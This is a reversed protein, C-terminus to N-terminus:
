AHSIKVASKFSFQASNSGIVIVKQLFKFVSFLKLSIEGSVFVLQVGVPSHYAAPYKNQTERCAVVAIGTKYRTLTRLFAATNDPVGYSIEAVPNRSYQYGIIGLGENIIM